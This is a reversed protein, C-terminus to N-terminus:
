PGMLGGFVEEFVTRSRGGEPSSSREVEREIYKIEVPAVYRGYGYGGWAVFIVVIVAPVSKIIHDLGLMLKGLVWKAVLSVVDFLHGLAGGLAGLLGGSFWQLIWGLGLKSLWGFVFGM